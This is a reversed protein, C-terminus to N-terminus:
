LTIRCYCGNNTECMTGGTDFRYRCCACSLKLWVAVSSLDLSQSFPTYCWLSWYGLYIVATISVDCLTILPKYHLCNDGGDPCLSVFHAVSSNLPPRGRTTVMRPSGTYSIELRNPYTGQGIQCSQEPLSVTMGRIMSKICLNDWVIAQFSCYFFNNEGCFYLM